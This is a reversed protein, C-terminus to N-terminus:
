LDMHMEIHEIGAERFPGGTEEFGHARYFGTVAVQAHLVLHEIGKSRLEEKLFSLMISGTGRGRFPELVAMREIKAQNFGPFRVRATGIVRNGHRAVVHVAQDDLGDYELAEAVGQEEVFVRRRVGFADNLESDSSVLKCTIHSM